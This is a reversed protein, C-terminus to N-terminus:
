CAALLKQRLIEQLEGTLKHGEHAVYFVDIARRGKTDILVVDINCANSSFVSALSYLLGPRDETVVEVLTASDCSDSDFQVQAPTARKRHEPVPPNRMLRRADTKGLAVRQLLDSLREMESPNLQLMRKPDAFVFTDLVVGKQNAFAEAKLIDLGFSSIAGALSAFLFPRDRAVVILRYAGEFEELRVAAGTPRSQEYLQVHQQIDAASRARLYRMPFGKIFDARGALDEPVQEIRETELERTLEQKTLSYTKSLRELRWPPMGEPNAAAISAYTFVTLMRLREATGARDALQRVTAPDDVDRATMAEDLDHQHEILFAVAARNDAPMQIRALATGAGPLLHLLIAIMLVAPDDIEALVERIRQRAPDTEASLAAVAEMASLTHEDATFQRVPQQLTADELAAWEPFLATLLGADELTRLAMGAHPSSLITKLTPWLPRSEACWAAFAPRAAELRRATEGAPLVGHRAVFEALRLISDPDSELESPSRLLLRDRSVTFEGNSLRTRYERFNDILSGHGKEAADFVWHVERFIVRASRYFQRMWEAPARGHAFPQQELSEQAEFDLVNADRGAHFHLFCRAASVVAAADQVRADPPEHHPNLKTLWEILGLDRIGGPGEKVDPELHRCTNRYRAHRTRAIQALRESLDHAHKAVVAPLKGQLRAHLNADGALFRLDLLDAALDLNKEHADLCEAITRATLNLRLGAEWLLRAFEKLPESEPAQEVLLIMDTGSYPFTERRGSAGVALMASPRALHPEIATRFAEAVIGDCADTLKSLVAAADGTNLFEQEIDHWTNSSQL